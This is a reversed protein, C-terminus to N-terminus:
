ILDTPDNLIENVTKLGDSNLYKFCLRYFETKKASLYLYMGYTLSLKSYECLLNIFRDLAALDKEELDSHNKLIQEKLIDLQEFVLETRVYSASDENQMYEALENYKLLLEPCYTKSIEFITRFRRPATKLPKKDNRCKNRLANKKRIGFAHSEL